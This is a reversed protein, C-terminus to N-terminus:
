GLTRISQVKVNESKRVRLGDKPCTHTGQFLGGRGAGSSPSLSLTFALM